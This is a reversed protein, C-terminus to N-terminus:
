SSNIVKYYEITDDDNPTNIRPFFNQNGVLLDIVKM